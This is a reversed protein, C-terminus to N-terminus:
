VSTILGESHVAAEPSQQVYIYNNRNSFKLNEVGEPNRLKIDGNRRVATVTAIAGRELVWRRGADLEKVYREGKVFMVRDGVVPWRSACPETAVEAKKKPKPLARQPQATPSSLIPEVGLFPLVAASWLPNLRLQDGVWHLFAMRDRQWRPFVWCYSPSWVTRRLGKLVGNIVDTDAWAHLYGPTADTMLRAHVTGDMRELWQASQINYVCGPVPLSIDEAKAIHTDAPFSMEMYEEFHQRSDYVKDFNWPPHAAEEIDKLTCRLVFCTELVRKAFMDDTWELPSLGDQKKRIESHIRPFLQRRWIVEPNRKGVLTYFENDTTPVRPEKKEKKFVKPPSPPLEPEKEDVGDFDFAASSPQRVKGSGFGLLGKGPWGSSAAEDQPEQQAPRAPGVCGCPRV